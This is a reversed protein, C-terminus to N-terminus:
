IKDTQELNLYLDLNIKLQSALEVNQLKVGEEKRRGGGDCNARIQIRLLSLGIDFKWGVWGV